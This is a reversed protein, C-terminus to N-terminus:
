KRVLELTNNNKSLEYDLKDIGVNISYFDNILNDIKCKLDRIYTRLTDIERNNVSFKKLTEHYDNTTKVLNKECISLENELSKYEETRYFDVKYKDLHKNSLLIYDFGYVICACIFNYLCSSLSSLLINRIGPIVLGVFPISFGLLFIQINHKLVRKNIYSEKKENIENNLNDVDSKAKELSLVSNDYESDITESYTIKDSLENSKINLEYNLANYESIFKEVIKDDININM